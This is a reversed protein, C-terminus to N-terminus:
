LIIVLNELDETKDPRELFDMKEVRAQFDLLDRAVPRDLLDLPRMQELFYNEQSELCEGKDLSDLSVLHDQPDRLDKLEPLEMTEMRDRTEQREMPDRLDQLVLWELLRKAHASRHCRCSVTMFSLTRDQRVLSEQVLEQTETKEQFVRSEMPARHVRNAPAANRM